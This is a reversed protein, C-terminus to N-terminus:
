EIWIKILTDESRIEFVKGSFQNLERIIKDLNYGEKRIDAKAEDPIAGLALDALAWPIAIEFGSEKGKLSKIVLHLIRGKAGPREKEAREMSQPDIRLLAIRARDRLEDSEENELIDQLVPVALRAVRVDELFSMKIAAYYKVVRNPNSLRREIEKSYPKRGKEVLRFSLDIIAIEAEEVLKQNRDKRDLYDQFVRLAYRDEGEQELLCKGKYFLAQAYYPSRPYEDLLEDLKEQAQKWEKDFILIKAEQFLEEDDLRNLGAPLWAQSLLFLGLGIVIAKRNYKYRM